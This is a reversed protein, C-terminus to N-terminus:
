LRAANVAEGVGPLVCCFVHTDRCFYLASVAVGEGRPM